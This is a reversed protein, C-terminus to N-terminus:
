EKTTDSKYGAPSGDRCDFDSFVRRTTKISQLEENETLNFMESTREKMVVGEVNEEYAYSSRVQVTLSPLLSNRTSVRAAILTATPSHVYFVSKTAVATKETAGEPIEVHELVTNEITWTEDHSAVISFDEIQSYVYGIHFAPHFFPLPEFHGIEEKKPTRGDISLVEWPSEPRLLPDFRGVITEYAVEEEIYTAVGQHITETYACSMSQVNREPDLAKLM